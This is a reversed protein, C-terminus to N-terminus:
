PERRPQRLYAGLTVLSGALFAWLLVGGAAMVALAPLAMLLVSWHLERSLLAEGTQAPNVWARARQRFLLDGYATKLAEANDMWLHPGYREGVHSHGAFAYRYRVTLHVGQAGMPSLTVDELTAMVPQWGRSRWVQWLPAGGLQWGAFGGGGLLILALLVLGLRALAQGFASSPDPFLLRMRLLTGSVAGQPNQLPCGIKDM